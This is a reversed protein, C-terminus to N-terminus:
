FQFGTRLILLNTEQQFGAPNDQAYFGRISAGQAYGNMFHGEIKFDLHSGWDFRATVAKDRIEPPAGVANASKEFYGSFYSGMQLWKCVRYSVAGYVGRITAVVEPPPVFAGSPAAGAGLPDNRILQDRATQGYEVDFQLPGREYQLYFQSTQNKRSQEHHAANFAPVIGTAHIDKDNWSVGALLGRLPTNWRLDAGEVRGSYDSLFVGYQRLGYTYGGYPDNPVQGAYATYSLSGFRELGITGYVDGGVHSISSARLDLPYLSQPMLAWTHLFDLDQSDNYLGLVTKVKGARLGLWNRFRYDVGAWDLSPHWQGLEGINRGYLQAGMRLKPTIQYSITGGFDTFAFSGDRTPLTLYNNGSSFLFGQSAFGHIEVPRGAVDFQTTQAGYM